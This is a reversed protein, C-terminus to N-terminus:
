GSAVTEVGDADPRDDGHRDGSSREDREAAAPRDHPLHGAAVTADPPPGPRDRDEPNLDELERRATEPFLALVIAAMVLPAVALVGLAGGFSGL